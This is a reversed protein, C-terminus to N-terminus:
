RRWRIGDGDHLRRLHGGARCDAGGDGSHRAVDRAVANGDGDATRISFEQAARVVAGVPLIGGGAAPRAHHRGPVPAAGIARHRHRVPDARAVAPDGRRHHGIRRARRPRLFTSLRARDDRAAPHHGDGARDRGVLRLDRRVARLVGRRRPRALRQHRRAVRDGSRGAGPRRRRAAHLGRGDRVAAAVDPDDFQAPRDHEAGARRDAPRVHFVPRVCLRRAGPLDADRGRAPRLVAGPLRHGVHAAHKTSSRNFSAPPRRM